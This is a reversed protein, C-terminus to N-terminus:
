FQQPWKRAGHLLALIEIKEPHVRYAMLFPLPKLSLERTTPIRGPRGMEPNRQLLEAATLIHDLMTDAADESKEGAWFQYAERLHREARRTWVIRM